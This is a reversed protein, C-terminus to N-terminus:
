CWRRTALQQRLGVDVRVGELTGVHGASRARWLRGYLLLLLGVPILVLFWPDALSYDGWLPLRGEAASQVAAQPVAQAAALSV